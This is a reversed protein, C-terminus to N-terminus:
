GFDKKVYSGITELINLSDRAAKRVVRGWAVPIIRDVIKKKVIKNKYKNMYKQYRSVFNPDVNYDSLVKPLVPDELSVGLYHIFIENMYNYLTMFDKEDFKIRGRRINEVLERFNLIDVYRIERFSYDKISIERRLWILSSVLGILLIILPRLVSMNILENILNDIWSVMPPMWTAPHLLKALFMAIIQAMPVLSIYRPNSIIEYPDLKNYRSGDFIVLCNPDKDCLKNLLDIYLDMYNSRLDSRLVQNLFLSGDGIVLINIKDITELVGVRITKMLDLMSYYRESGQSYILYYVMDEGSTKFSAVYSEESIYSNNVVFGKEVFGITEVYSSEKSIEEISSAIDLRVVYKKDSSINFVAEPYLLSSVPYLSMNTSILSSIMMQSINRIELGSGKVPETSLIIKGSIRLSSNFLELIQNSVGSEDAIFINFSNCKEAFSKINYLDEESYYKEPSIIILVAKECSVTPIHSWSLILFTKPYIQKTIMYIESTGLSGINLPSSGLYIYSSPPGQELVALVGIFILMAVAGSIVLKLDKRSINETM